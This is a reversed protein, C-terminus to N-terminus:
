FPLEDDNVSSGLIKIQRKRTKNLRKLYEIRKEDLSKIKDNIENIKKASKSADEKNLNYNKDAEYKQSRTRLSKIQRELRQAERAYEIIKSQSLSAKSYGSGM